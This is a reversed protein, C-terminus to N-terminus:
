KNIENLKEEVETLKLKLQTHENSKQLQIQYLLKLQSKM